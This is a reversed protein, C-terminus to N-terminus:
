HGFHVENFLNFCVFLCFLFEATSSSLLHSSSYVLSTLFYLLVSPSFFKHYWLYFELLLEPLLLSLILFLSLFSLHKDSSDLDMPFLLILNILIGSSFHVSLKIFSIILSFKM